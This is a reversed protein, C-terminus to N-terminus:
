FIIDRFLFYYTKNEKLKTDGGFCLPVNPDSQGADTQRDTQGTTLSEQYDCMVINQMHCMYEM